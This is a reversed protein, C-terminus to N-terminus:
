NEKLIEILAYIEAVGNNVPQGFNASPFNSLVQFQFTKTGNILLRSEFKMNFIQRNGVTSNGKARLTLESSSIVGGGASSQVMRGSFKAPNTLTTGSLLVNGRFRFGEGSGTIGISGAAVTVFGSPDTVETNFPVTTWIGSSISASATNAALQYSLFAYNAAEEDGSGEVYADPTLQNVTEDGGFFEANTYRVIAQQTEVLIYDGFAAIGLIPASNLRTILRKGPFRRLKGIDGQLMGEMFFVDEPPVAEAILNENLGVIPMFKAGDIDRLPM